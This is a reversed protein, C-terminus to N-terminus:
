ETGTGSKSRSKLKLIVDVTLYGACYVCWTVYDTMLFDREEFLPPTPVCLVRPQWNPNLNKMVTESTYIKSRMGPASFLYVVYYPDSYGGFDMAALERGSLEIMFSQAMMTPQVAKAAM